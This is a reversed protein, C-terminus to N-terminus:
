AAEEDSTNLTIMDITKDHDKEENKHKSKKKKKKPSVDEHEHSVSEEKVVSSEQVETVEEHKSKKKKSKTPEDGLECSTVEQQTECEEVEMIEKHKSKRKRRKKKKKSPVDESKNSCTEEQIVSTEGVDNAEVHKSKRKKEVALDEERAEHDEQDVRVEELKSRKRKKSAENTSDEGEEEELMPSLESTTDNNGNETAVNGTDKSKSKRKGRKKRKKKSPQDVVIEAKWKYEPLPVNFNREFVAIFFGNCFDVESKAYLCRDGYIYNQSGFNIWDGKLLERGPVLKYAESVSPFIENIVAENEEPNISCTSYVIRKAQPFNLLAHRLILVQFTQLKMLRERNYADEVDDFMQRDLMGSGSCSPDVLIYEIDSYQSKDITLADKHLPIVCFANTLKVLECLTTFRREDIEVAYLKGQNQMIAALHSTKMGPAACMELVTSGPPPNLLYASLCSAKDQLILKGSQYDPHQHFPTKPPFAFLEPIHYDQLVDSGSLNSLTDLYSSYSTSKPLLSWGEKEFNAIATDVPLLLTNIRVYRPWWVSRKPQPVNKINDVNKLANRLQDQYSLVTQVPKCESQLCQKGWLLETILVRALWPDLRPENFLIRTEHLLYNLQQGNQLTNLTLAYIGSVNPHKKQFILTKLSGKEEKVSRVINAATKYLRPVKVSHVFGNSMRNCRGALSM